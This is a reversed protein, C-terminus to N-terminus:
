RKVNCQILIYTCIFIYQNYPLISGGYHGSDVKQSIAARTDVARVDVARTDVARTDVARTDPEGNYLTCQVLSRFQVRGRILVDYCAQNFFVSSNPAEM